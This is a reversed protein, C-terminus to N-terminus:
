CEILDKIVFSMYSYSLLLHINSRLFMVAMIHNKTLENFFGGIRKSICVKPVIIYSYTEVTMYLDSDSTQMEFEYFYGGESADIQDYWM